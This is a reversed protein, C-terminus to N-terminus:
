KSRNKITAALTETKDLCLLLLEPRKRCSISLNLNAIELKMIGLRFLLVCSNLLTRDKALGVHDIRQM